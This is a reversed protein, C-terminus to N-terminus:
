TVIFHLKFLKLNIVSAILLKNPPIIKYIM